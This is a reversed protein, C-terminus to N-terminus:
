SPRGPQTKSATSATAAIQEAVMAPHTLAVAHSACIESAHAGVRQALFRQAEAPIVKDETAIVYWSPVKRWAAALSEEELAVAAIPRQTAAAAAAERRPMGAAFIRPYAERDLYFEVGPAGSACPFTVPRLAPLLQSGPFRGIIDLVSEGEDLAYGAVYVLGVVNRAEAAAATIVAGGYCHGVLLVPADIEGVAGTIYAADSALSRLPNALAVSDIGVALLETIVAAWMSGDAFGGHVLLVTPTSGNRPPSHSMAPDNGYGPM